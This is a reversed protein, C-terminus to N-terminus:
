NIKGKKIRQIVTVYQEESPQWGPPFYQLRIDDFPCLREDHIMCGFEMRYACTFCNRKFLGM